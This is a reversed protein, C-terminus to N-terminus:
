KLEKLLEPDKEKLMVYLIKEIRDLRGFIESIHKEYKNVRREFDNKVRSCTEYTVKNDNFKSLIDKLLKFLALLSTFAMWFEASKLVDVM